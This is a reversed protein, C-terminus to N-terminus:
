FMSSERHKGNNDLYMFIKKLVNEIGPIFGNIKNCCKQNVYISRDVEKYYDVENCVRQNIHIESGSFLIDSNKTFQIM